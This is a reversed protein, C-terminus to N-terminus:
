AALVPQIKHSDHGHDTSAITLFVLSLVTFVLAQVLGVFLELFFFPVPGFFPVLAAMVVLLVEGAFINGFLRFSFSLMRTIESFLELVGIFMMLPNFSFYKGLHRFLGLERAAYIQTMIVSIVALALTTNLDANAGRLLPVNGHATNIVVTGFGPLLGLWNNVVIYIFLTMLLPFFRRAKDRDQTVQEILDLVAEFLTEVIQALRGGPALRVSLGAWILWAAILLSAIVSTFLSNTLALRGLSFIYEPAISIHIM